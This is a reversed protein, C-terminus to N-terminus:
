PAAVKTFRISTQTCGLGVEVLGSAHAGRGAQLADAVAGLLRSTELPEACLFGLLREPGLVDDLVISGEVMQAGAAVAPLLRAGGPGYDLIAGRGDVSILGLYGARRASVRFRLADGPHATGGDLLGTVRGDRGKAFIELDITGGKARLAPEPAPPARRRPGVLLMLAAVAVVLVGAVRPGRWWRSGPLAAGAPAGGVVPRGALLRAADAEIARFRAGCSACSALHGRRAEGEVGAVERAFLQDLALDSLCGRALEPRDLDFVRM